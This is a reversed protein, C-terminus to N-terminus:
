EMPPCNVPQNAARRIFLMGDPNVRVREGPVMAAQKGGAELAVSGAFLEVVTEDGAPIFPEAAAPEPASIAGLLASLLIAAIRPQAFPRPLFVLPLTRRLIM